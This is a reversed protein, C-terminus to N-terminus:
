DRWFTRTVQYSALILVSMADGAKNCYVLVAGAIRKLKGQGIGSADATGPGADYFRRKCFFSFGVKEPFLSHEATARCFKDHGAEVCEDFRAVLRLNRVVLHHVFKLQDDVEQMFASDGFHVIEDALSGCPSVHDASRPHDIIM